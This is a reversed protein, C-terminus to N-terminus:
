SALAASAVAPPKSWSLTTTRKLGTPPAGCSARLLTRLILALWFNSATTTCRRLAAQKRNIMGTQECSDERGLSLAAQGRSEWSELAKAFAEVEEKAIPYTHESAPYSRDKVEDRYAEIARLSEGWVDGYKKVFKPLFRGPPFNGLMDVQVLVQGSCGNGAGIGITPVSLKNTIVTAIEAPVAEVVMAFCGAEQVALADELVKMAGSSTKGQVRFGGLANQRQPTLGIHALVPIGAQTIKKITPAMEKGGELKIGQVRGEKVFRIATALAQEPSIEYSGMPLDGVTFAAKTARAVSKCHLLMEDVMVESTDEMGLAVMALSDGVLIMDMGAADAVHASPFDHATMVTIPEGKKYLSRITGTTVKKRSSAASTSAGLPSHSSWRQQQAYIHHHQSSRVHQGQPLVPTISRSWTPSSPYARLCVAFSSRVM